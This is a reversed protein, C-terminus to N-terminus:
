RTFASVIAGLASVYFLALPVALVVGALAVGITAAFGAKVWYSVTPWEFAIFAGDGDKLVM